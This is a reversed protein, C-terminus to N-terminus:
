ENIKFKENVKRRIKNILLLGYVQRIDDVLQEMNDDCERIRTQDM